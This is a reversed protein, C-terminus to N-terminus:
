SWTSRRVAGNSVLVGELICVMLSATGTKSSAISISGPMEGALCRYAFCFADGVVTPVEPGTREHSADGLGYVVGTAMRRWARLREYGVRRPIEKATMQVFMQALAWPPQYGRPAGYRPANSM